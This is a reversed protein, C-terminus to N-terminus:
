PTRGVFGLGIDYSQTYVRVDLAQRGCNRRMDLKKSPSELCKKVERMGLVTVMSAEHTCISTSVRRARKM